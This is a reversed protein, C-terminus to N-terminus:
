IFVLVGSSEFLRPSFFGRLAPNKKSQWSNSRLRKQLLLLLLLHQPQHLLQLLLLMLQSLMLQLRQLLPQHLLQRQHPHQRLLKKKVAPLWLLLLL